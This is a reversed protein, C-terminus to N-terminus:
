NHDIRMQEELYRRVKGYHEKLTGIIMKQAIQRAKYCQWSNVKVGYKDMMEAEIEKVLWSPNKKLKEIFENAIFEVIVQRNHQLRYFSHVDTLTKIVFTNEHRLM